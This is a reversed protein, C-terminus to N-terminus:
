KNGRVSQDGRTLEISNGTNSMKMNFKKNTNGEGTWFRINSTLSAGFIFWKLNQKNFVNM